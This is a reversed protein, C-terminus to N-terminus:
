YGHSRPAGASANLQTTQGAAHQLSATPDPREVCSLFYRQAKCCRKDLVVLQSMSSVPDSHAHTRSIGAIQHHPSYKLTMVCKPLCAVCNAQKLLAFGSSCVLEPSEESGSTGRSFLIPLLHQSPQARGQLNNAGSGTTIMTAISPDQHFHPSGPRAIVASFKCSTKSLFPQFLDDTVTSFHLMCHSHQVPCLATLLSFLSQTLVWCGHHM